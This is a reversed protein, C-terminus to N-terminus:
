GIVPQSDCRFLVERDFVVSALFSRAAAAQLEADPPQCTALHLVIQDELVQVRMGSIVQGHSRDLGDAVRLLSALLEVRARDDPTLRAFDDHAFDPMKRRHYRAVQAMLDVEEANLEKWPCQRILRASEKHHGKGDPATSWGIDHLYAAGELLFRDTEGLGHCKALADFLQMALKAVQLVHAPESELRRMVQLVEERALTVNM